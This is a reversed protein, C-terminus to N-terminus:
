DVNTVCFFHLKDFFAVQCQCPVWKLHMRIHCGLPLLFIRKAHSICMEFICQLKLALKKFDLGSPQVDMQFTICILNIFCEFIWQFCISTILLYHLPFDCLDTAGSTCPFNSGYPGHVKYEHTQHFHAGGVSWPQTCVCTLDPLKPVGTIRESM